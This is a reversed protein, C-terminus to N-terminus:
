SHALPGDCADPRPVSCPDLPNLCHTAVCMLKAVWELQTLLFRAATFLHERAGAPSVAFLACVAAVLSGLAPGVTYGQSELSVASTRLMIAASLFGHRLHYDSRDLYHRLQERAAWPLLTECWIAAAVPIQLFLVGCAIRSTHYSGPLRSLGCVDRAFVVLQSVGDILLPLSFCRIAPLIVRDKHMQALSIGVLGLGFTAAAKEFLGAHVFMGLSELPLVRLHHALVFPRMAVGLLDDVASFLTSAVCMSVDVLASM